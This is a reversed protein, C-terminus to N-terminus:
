AGKANYALQAKTPVRCVSYDIVGGDVKRGDNLTYTLLVNLGEVAEVDYLQTDPAESVVVQLGPKIDKLDVRKQKAM